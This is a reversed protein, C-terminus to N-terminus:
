GDLESLETLECRLEDLVQNIQQTLTSLRGRLETAEEERMRQARQQQSNAVADADLARTNTTDDNENRLVPLMQDHGDGEEAEDCKKHEVHLKDIALGHRLIQLQATITLKEREMDQVERLMTGLTAGDAGNSAARQSIEATLINIQQSIQGFATTTAKVLAEYGSAEAVALFNTFGTEFRRYTLVRMEQQQFFQRLLAAIDLSTLESPQLSVSSFESTPVNQEACEQCAMADRGAPKSRQQLISMASTFDM